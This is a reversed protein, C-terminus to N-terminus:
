TGFPGLTATYLVPGITMRRSGTTSTATAQFTPAAVVTAPPLHTTINAVQVGDVFFLVRSAGADDVASGNWVIKFRNFADAVPTNGSDVSTTASGDGTVCQWTTDANTKIFYASGPTGISSLGQVFTIGNAGITGISSVWEMVITNDTAYCAPGVKAQLSSSSGSNGDNRLFFTPFYPSHGGGGTIAANGGDCTQTGAIICSWPLAFNQFLTTGAVASDLALWHERIKTVGYSELGFHDLKFRNAGSPTKVGWTPSTYATSVSFPTALWAIWDMAEKFPQAISAANRAEGDVPLAATPVSGTGPLVGPSQTTNPNGSYNSPM